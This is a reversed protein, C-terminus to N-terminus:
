YWIVRLEDGEALTGDWRGGTWTLTAGSITFDVTYRMAGGGNLIDVVARSPETPTGTLTVTKTVEDSLTLTFYDVKYDSGIAGSTVLWDSPSEIGVSIYTVRNATDIYHHGIGPPAVTPPTTGTYIHQM